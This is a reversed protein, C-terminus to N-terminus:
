HDLIEWDFVKELSSGDKNASAESTWDNKGVRKSVEQYLGEIEKYYYVPFVKEVFIQGGLSSCKFQLGQTKM